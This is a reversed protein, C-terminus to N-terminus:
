MRSFGRTRAFNLASSLAARGLGLSGSDILSVSCSGYRLATMVSPMRRAIPVLWRWVRILGLVTMVKLSPLLCHDM